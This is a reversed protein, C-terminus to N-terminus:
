AELAADCQKCVRSVAGDADRRYGVRTREGCKPCIIMVNSADMAGEFTLIEPALQRGGPGPRARQHKKRLNLGQVVVRNDKPVVRLVEGRKGRDKGDIVEVTDGKKIRVTLSEQAATVPRPWGAAGSACWV